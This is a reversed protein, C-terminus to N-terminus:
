HLDLFDAVEKETYGYDHVARVMRADRKAQTATAFFECYDIM